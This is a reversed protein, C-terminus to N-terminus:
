EHAAPQGPCDSTPPLAPDLPRRQVTGGMRRVAPLYESKICVRFSARDPAYHRDQVQAKRALFAHLKGNAPLTHVVADIRETQLFRAIRAALEDLGQGTRASVRVLEDYRSRLLPLATHDKILDIKNLVILRSRDACDLEALAADVAEAEEAAAPSAADVVHLLLDAQRVEELTAHFSAVLHHPLQRIFGVTDSLLVNQNKSIQWTRTRTDLTAFLQDAVYSGANTLANLLCTKGANTYGVLSVTMEDGRSGVQRERRASIEALKRRLDRIRIRVLRRDTEIQREGPGRMGIGGEIRELHTWMHRLRPFTYELQALEVQLRAQATRAHTAFIDLILETRDIVKADTLEELNRLQAPSLENDFIVVDAKDRAVLEALEQAKGHGLYHARHPRDRHQILRAVVEAGATDALLGLERLPTDRDRDDKRRYCGVLVARERQVSLDTRKLDM